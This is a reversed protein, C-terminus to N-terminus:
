HVPMEMQWVGARSFCYSQFMLHVPMDMQRAGRVSLGNLMNCSRHQMRVMRIVCPDSKWEAQSGVGHCDTPDGKAGPPGRPCLNLVYSHYFPNLHMRLGDLVYWIHQIWVAHPCVTSEMGCNSFTLVCKESCQQTWGLLVLAICSFCYQSFSAFMVRLKTSDM